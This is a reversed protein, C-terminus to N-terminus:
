RLKKQKLAPTNAVLMTYEISRKSAFAPDTRAQVRRRVDEAESHSFNAALTCGKIALIGVFQTPDEKINEYKERLERSLWNTAYLEAMDRHIKTCGGKCCKKMYDAIFATCQTYFQELVTPNQLLLSCVWYTMSTVSGLVKAVSGSATKMSKEQAYFFKRVEFM